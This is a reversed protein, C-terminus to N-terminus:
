KALGYILSGCDRILEDSALLQDPSRTSWSYTSLSTELAELYEPSLQKQLAARSAPLDFISASAKPKLRETDAVAQYVRAYDPFHSSTWYTPDAEGLRAQSLSVALSFEPSLLAAHRGLGSWALINDPDLEAARTFSQIASGVDHDHEQIEGLMAYVASNRSGSRVQAELSAKAATRAAPTEMVNETTFYNDEPLKSPTRRFAEGIERTGEVRNGTEVLDLGLRIRSSFDAPFLKLEMRYERTAQQQLNLAEWDSAQKVLAAGERFDALRHSGTDHIHALVEYAKFRNLSFLAKVDDPDLAIARRVNAEAEVLKGERRLLEAKWVLPRSEQPFAKVLKDLLVGASQTDLSLLLEYEEDKGPNLGVDYSSVRFAESKRGVMALSKAAIYLLSRGGQGVHALQGLDKGVWGPYQELLTVVDQYRGIECYFKALQLGADQTPPPYGQGTFQMANRMGDILVKEVKPGQARHVFPELEADEFGSWSGGLSSLKMKMARDTLDPRNLLQGLAFLLPVQDSGFGSDNKTLTPDTMRTAAEKLRGQQLLLTQLERQMDTKNNGTRSTAAIRRLFTELEAPGIDEKGLSVYLGPLSSDPWAFALGRLYSLFTGLKGLDRLSQTAEALPNGMGLFLNACHDKAFQRARPLKGELYLNILCYVAAEDETSPEMTGIAVDTQKPFRRKLTLYAEGADLSMALEWQPTALRDLNRIMIKRALDITSRSFGYRYAVQMGHPSHLLLHTIVQTARQQGLLPVLDPLETWHGISGYRGHDERTLGNREDMLLSELETRNGTRIALDLKVQDIRIQVDETEDKADLAKLSEVAQTHQGLLVQVLLLMALNRGKPPGAATLKQEITPWTAPPPLADIMSSFDGLWSGGFRGLDEAVKRQALDVWTAAATGPPLSYRSKTFADLDVSLKLSPDNIIFGPSPPELVSKAGLYDTSDQGFGFQALGAVLAM